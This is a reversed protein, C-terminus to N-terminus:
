CEIINLCDRIKLKDDKKKKINMDVTLLVPNKPPTHSLVYPSLTGM